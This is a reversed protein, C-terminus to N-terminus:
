AKPTTAAVTFIHKQPCVKGGSVSLRPSLDCKSDRQRAYIMDADYSVDIVLFFCSCAFSVVFRMGVKLLMSSSAVKQFVCELSSNVSSSVGTSSTFNTLALM